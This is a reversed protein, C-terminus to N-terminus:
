QYYLTEDKVFTFTEGADRKLFAKVQKENESPLISCTAYVLDGGPKVMRSYSDLIESQTVKIEELFDPNMKWKADPNRKLVGTGSCPVDLYLRDASNELRKITKNNEILQLQEQIKEVLDLNNTNEASRLRDKLIVEERNKLSLLQNLQDQNTNLALLSDEQNQLFILPDKVLQQQTILAEIKLKNEHTEILSEFNVKAFNNESPFDIDKQVKIKELDNLIENQLENFAYSKEIDLAKLNLENYINLDYPEYRVVIGRGECAKVFDDFLTIPTSSKPISLVITRNESM